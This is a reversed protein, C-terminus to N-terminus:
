RANYGDYRRFYRKLESHAEDLRTLWLKHDGKAGSMECVMPSPAPPEEVLKSIVKRYVGEVIPTLWKELTM